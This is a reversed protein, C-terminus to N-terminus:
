AEVIKDNCRALQHYVGRTDIILPAHQLIFDYDYASHDTAVVVCDCASFVEETLPVSESSFSYNRAPNLKPIHPDNYQITAGKSIVGPLPYFAKAGQPPL